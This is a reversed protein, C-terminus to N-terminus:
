LAGGGAVISQSSTPGITAEHLLSVCSFLHARLQNLDRHSFCVSVTPTQNIFDGCVSRLVAHVEFNFQVPPRDKM